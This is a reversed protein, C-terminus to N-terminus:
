ETETRQSFSESANDAAFKVACEPSPNIGCQLVLSAVSQIQNEKLTKSIILIVGVIVFFVFSAVLVPVIVPGLKTITGAIKAIRLTDLIKKYTTLLKIVTGLLPGTSKRLSELRTTANAVYDEIDKSLEETDPSIKNPLSRVEVILRSINRTLNAIMARINRISDSIKKSENDTGPVKVGAVSKAIKGVLGKLNLIKKRIARIENDIEEKQKEQFEIQEDLSKTSQEFLLRKNDAM